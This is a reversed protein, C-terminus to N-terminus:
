VGFCATLTNRSRTNQGDTKFSSVVALELDNRRSQSIRSVRFVAYFGKKRRCKSFSCFVGILCSSALSLLEIRASRRELRGIGLWNGDTKMVQEIMKQNGNAQYIWSKISHFHPM